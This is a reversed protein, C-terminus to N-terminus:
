FKSLYSEALACTGATFEAGTSLALDTDGHSGIWAVLLLRRMLVFTSIEAEDAGPMPRVARYGDVWAAILEPARPDHELFSLASGLDYLFWGFGCDDFDIVFTDSDDVLLNALRLDAHILGYRDRGKGFVALRHRLTADLRGLIKIEAPGIGPGDQWRGWRAAPGFAADYDWAFRTFRPPRRWRLAHEHMRATIRGLTGFARPLDTDPPETGPLHEFMVVRRPEEPPGAPVTVVRRGYVSPLVQPTRIGAETRLANLWALEAEIAELTHYGTRHVRLVTRRGAPDDVAFTANESVNLLTLTAAPDVPYHRLAARAVELPTM